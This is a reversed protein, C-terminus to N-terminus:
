GMLAINRVRPTNMNLQMSNRLLQQIAPTAHFKVNKRRLSLLVCYSLYRVNLNLKFKINSASNQWLVIKKSTGLVNTM